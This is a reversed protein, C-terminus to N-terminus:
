FGSNTFHIRKMSSVTHRFDKLQTSSKLTM